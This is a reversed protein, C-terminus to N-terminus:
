AFLAVQWASPLPISFVFPALLVFQAVVLCIGVIFLIKQLKKNKIKVLAGGALIMGFLYALAIFLLKQAAFAATVLSLAVGVLPIVLSRVTARAEKGTEKRVFLTILRVVAFLVGALACLGSIGGFTALTVAYHTGTGEFVKFLYEWGTQGLLVSAGSGFGGAITQWIFSFVSQTPSLASDFAKVYAFYAPIVALMTILLAGVVLSVIFLLIAAVNKYKYEAVVARREEENAAKQLYYLKATRQRLMGAAFLGVTGLVPLLLASNVCLAAACSLGAFGVPLAGRLNASKMGKSFFKYAFYLSLTLFFVGLMLPSGLHGLSLSAGCLTYLIAFVLGAKDSKFARRAIAYGLLLVGFSALMPFIRMGFPSMGFILTGFTILDYGFAGYSDDVSYISNAVYQNGRRIETVTAVSSLEEEGYRFFSSQALSPIVQSDLTAKASSLEIGVSKDRDIEAQIVTGDDAVFVVENILVNYKTTVLRYYQRSSINYSTASIEYPAIWNYAADKQASSNEQTQSELTFNGLTSSLWEDSSNLYQMRVVTTEGAEAYVNGFNFYIQQISTQNDGKTLKFVLEDGKALEYSYGTGQTSGLTGLGFVLFLAAIIVFARAFCSTKKWLRKIKSM